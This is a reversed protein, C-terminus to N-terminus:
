QRLHAVAQWAPDHMEHVSTAGEDWSRAVEKVTALASSTSDVYLHFTRIGATSLHAVVQGDNGLRAGLRHEFARLAELSSDGPQGGAAHDRYPVTVAVYTDLHPATVPHLPSRVMALLLGDATEGRLMVWRPQGDADLRQRKLDQVVSRLATLGFADLPELEVPLVEGLAADVALFTAMARAQEPLDPFSPHHVQVDFRGDDMRAAVRVRALDIDQGELSVVVSEPDPSPPRSDLYAWTEDPEPAALVVRRALARLEANGGTGIVLVHESVDGAALEWSLEGLAQVRSTMATAFSDPDVEGAVTQEALARGEATWWDWFPAHDSPSDGASRRRPFRM